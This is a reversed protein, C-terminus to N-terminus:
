DILAVLRRDAGLTDLTALSESAVDYALGVSTEDGQDILRRGLYTRALSIQVLARDSTGSLTSAVAATYLAIAVATAVATAVSHADARTQARQPRGAGVRLM